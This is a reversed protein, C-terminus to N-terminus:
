ENKEEVSFDPLAVGSLSRRRIVRKRTPQVCVSDDSIGCSTKLFSRVGQNGLDFSTFGRKSVLTPDWGATILICVCDISGVWAAVHLATYGKDNMVDRCVEQEGSNLFAQMSESDGTRAMYHLTTNGTEDLPDQELTSDDSPFVNFRLRWFQRTLILISRASLRQGHRLEESPINYVPVLSDTERVRSIDYDDNNSDSHNELCFDGVM